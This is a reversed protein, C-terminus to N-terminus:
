NSESILMEESVEEEPTSKKKTNMTSRKRESVIESAMNEIDEYINQLTSSIIQELKEKKVSQKTLMCLEM